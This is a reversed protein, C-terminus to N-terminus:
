KMWKEEWRRIRQEWNEFEEDEDVVHAETKKGYNDNGSKRMSYGMVLGVALGALHAEHATNTVGSLGVVDIFIYSILVAWMPM